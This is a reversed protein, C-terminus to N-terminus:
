AGALQALRPYDRSFHHGHGVAVSRQLARPSRCVSDHEDTASVCTFAIPLRDLEPGTPYRSDHGGGLWDSVHFEFSAAPSPGLLTVSDIRARVREPLRNVLFPAVDAGFSYGVIRVRNRHWSEAYHEIIRALDAAAREPTRPTWYYTLSSWGVVPVGAHALETAVAKDLEAWGGDGTLLVAFEDRHPGTTDRVDM